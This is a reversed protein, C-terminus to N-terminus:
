EESVLSSDARFALHTAVTLSDRSHRASRELLVVARQLALLPEPREAMLHDNLAAAREDVRDFAERAAETADYDPTTVADRTASAAEDLADALDRFMSATTEDPAQDVDAALTGIEVATDAMLSVDQAVSRYGILPFGTELGVARNLRPNRYTAFVLRLFLYYLKELQESRSEVRQTADADGELLASVADHRIMAETRSLRGLLTPLEFDGPAVSCRVTVTTEAQEVIGLGMLRREADLIANTCELSMPATSEIRILQRGLVYQTVIARELAAATLRDADITTEIDEVKPQEPVLLLSGGNEDRQVIVEDGKEISHYRAWDAPVTVALTSSGLQQVKRKM